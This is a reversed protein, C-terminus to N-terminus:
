KGYLLYRVTSTDLAQVTGAAVVSTITLTNTTCVAQYGVGLTGGPTVLQAFANGSTTLTPITVVGVGAVLTVSGVQIFTGAGPM